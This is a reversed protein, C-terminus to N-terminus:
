SDLDARVTRESATIIREGARIARKVALLSVPPSCVNIKLQLLLKHM